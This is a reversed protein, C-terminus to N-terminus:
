QGIYTDHLIPDLTPCLFDVLPYLQTKFSNHGLDTRPYQLVQDDMEVKCFCLCCQRDYRSGTNHIREGSTVIIKIGDLNQYGNYTKTQWREM